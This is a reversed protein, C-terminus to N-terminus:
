IETDELNSTNKSIKNKIFTIVLPITTIVIFGVIIYGLYEEVQKSFSKGLFYTDIWTPFYIEQQHYCASRLIM